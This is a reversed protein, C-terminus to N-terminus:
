NESKSAEIARGQEKAQNRARERSQENGPEYTFCKGQDGWKFGPKNDRQCRQVPM